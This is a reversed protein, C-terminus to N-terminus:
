QEEGLVMRLRAIDYAATWRARSGENSLPYGQQHYAESAMADISLRPASLISAHRIEAVGVTSLAIGRLSLEQALSTETIKGKIFDLIEGTDLQKVDFPSGKPADSECVVSVCRAATDPAHVYVQGDLRIYKPSNKASMPNLDGHNNTLNSAAMDAKRQALIIERDFSILDATKNKLVFRPSYMSGSARTEFFAMLMNLRHLAGMYEFHM